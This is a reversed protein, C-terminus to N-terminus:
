MGNKLSFYAKKIEKSDTNIDVCRHTHGGNLRKLWNITESDGHPPPNSYM